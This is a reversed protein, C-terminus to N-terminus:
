RKVDEPSLAEDKEFQEIIELAEDLKAQDMLERARTLEEPLQQLMTNRNASYPDVM